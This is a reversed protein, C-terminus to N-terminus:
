LPGPDLTWPGPDPDPTWLSTIRRFSLAPRKINLRV